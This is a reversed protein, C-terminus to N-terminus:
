SGHGGYVLRRRHQGYRSQGPRFPGLCGGLSRNVPELFTGCFVSPSFSDVKRGFGTEQARWISCMQRYFCDPRRTRVSQLLRAEALSLRLFIRNVILKPTTATQLRRLAEKTQGLKALGTSLWLMCEEFWSATPEGRNRCKFMHLMRQGEAMQSLRLVLSYVQTLVHPYYVQRRHSRNKVRVEDNEDDPSLLVKSGTAAPVFEAHWLSVM